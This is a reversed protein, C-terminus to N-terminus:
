LRKGGVEAVVNHLTLQFGESFLEQRLGCPETCEAAKKKPLCLFYMYKRSARWRMKLVGAGEDM